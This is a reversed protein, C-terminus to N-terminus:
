RHTASRGLLDKAQSAFSGRPHHLLYDHAAARARATNGQALWLRVVEARASAALQGKPSEALYTEFWRLAADNKGKRQSLRALHYSSLIAGRSRPFRDRLKLLAREAETSRGAYRLCNAFELLEGEPAQELVHALNDINRTFAQDYRGAACTQRWTEAPAAVSPLPAAPADAGAVEPTTNVAPAVQPETLSGEDNPQSSDTSPAHDSTYGEGDRLSLGETPLHAGFVRVVGETVRVAFRGRDADFSVDFQTGVVAVRYGGAVLVWDRGHQKNVHVNVQGSILRVRVDPQAVFELEADRAAIVRSGDDLDFARPETSMASSALSDRPQTTSQSEPASGLALYLGLGAMVVGLTSVAFWGLQPLTFWKRNSRLAYAVVAAEQKALRSAHTGNGLARAVQRGFEVISISM